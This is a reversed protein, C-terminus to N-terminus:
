FFFFFFRNIGGGTTDRARTHAVLQRGARQYYYCYRTNESDRFKEPRERKLAFHTVKRALMGNKIVIM